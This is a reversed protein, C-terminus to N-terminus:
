GKNQKQRMYELVDGSPIIPHNIIPESFWYIWATTTTENGSYVTTLGRHYPLAGDEPDSHIGEYSDLQEMAWSFEDQNKIHYLEGVLYSDDETPLAAPFEGLDYLYGKVKADSVLTFYRSIYEFAPAQFGSRLSGYVFIQLVPEQM